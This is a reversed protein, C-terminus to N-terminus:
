LFRASGMKWGDFLYAPVARWKEVELFQMALFDFSRFM